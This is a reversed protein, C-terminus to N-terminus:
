NVTVKVSESSKTKYKAKYTATKGAKYKKSFYGQSNTKVTKWVSYSSEGKLKRYLTITKDAKAQDIWGYLRADAGKSVTTKKAALSIPLQPEATVQKTVDSNATVATSAESFTVNIDIYVGDDMVTVDLSAQQDDVFVALDDATIETESFTNMLDIVANPIFMHFYGTTGSAGTLNFGFAINDQSPPIIEWDQLNTSLWGGTMAAPPGSGDSSAPVLAVIAAGMGEPFSQFNESGVIGELTFTVTVTGATADYTWPASPDINAGPTIVLAPSEDVTFVATYSEDVTGLWGFMAIGAPGDGPTMQDSIDELPSPSISVLEATLAQTAKPAFLVSVALLLSASIIKLRTVM